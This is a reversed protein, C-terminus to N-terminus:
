FNFKYGISLRVAANNYKDKGGGDWKLKSKTFNYSLETLFNNYEFGVGIGAYLGNEAKIKAVEKNDFKYTYKGRNFSYGLDAKVYPRFNSEINFNYKAILYLPISNYSPMDGKLHYIDTGDTVLEDIKKEKRHIFGLGFGAEFSDTVNYTNELFFGYGNKAKKPLDLGTEDSFKFKSHLDVETKFYINYGNAFSIITTLAFLGSLLKKM